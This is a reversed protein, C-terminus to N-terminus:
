PLYWIGFDTRSGYLKLDENFLSIAGTLTKVVLQSSLLAVRANRAVTSAELRSKSWTVVQLRANDHDPLTQDVYEYPVGGVNQYIILPFTPDDPAVDPYCHNAVLPGLIAFVSTELSM